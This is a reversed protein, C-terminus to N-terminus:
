WAREVPDRIWVVIHTDSGLLRAAEAVTADPLESYTPSCDARVPYSPDFLHLYAHLNRTPGLWYARGREGLDSVHLRRGSLATVDEFADSFFM